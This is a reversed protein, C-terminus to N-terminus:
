RRTTPKPVWIRKDEGSARGTLGREPYSVKNVGAEKALAKAVAQCRTAMDERGRKLAAAGPSKPPRKRTSKAM